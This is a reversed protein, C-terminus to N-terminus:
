SVGQAHGNRQAFTALRAEVRALRQEVESQELLKAYSMSAQSLAHCAKLILEPDDSSLLVAEAEVIVQWLVKLLETLNGIRHTRRRLLKAAHRRRPM